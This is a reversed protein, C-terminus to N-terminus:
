VPLPTVFNSEDVSITIEQTDNLDEGVGIPRVVHTRSSLVRYNFQYDGEALREIEPDVLYEYTVETLDPLRLMVYVEPPDAKTDTGLLTFSFPTSTDDGIQAM